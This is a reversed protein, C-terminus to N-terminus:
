LHPSVSKPLTLAEWLVVFFNGEIVELSACLSDCTVGSGAICVIDVRDRYQGRGCLYFYSDM